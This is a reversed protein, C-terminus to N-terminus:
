LEDLDSERKIEIGLKTIITDFMKSYEDITAKKCDVYGLSYENNLYDRYVCDQYVIIGYLLKEYIDKYEKILKDKNIIYIKYNSSINNILLKFFRNKRLSRMEDKSCVYLDISKKGSKISNIREILYKIEKDSDNYLRELYFTIIKQEIKADQHDNAKKLWDYSERISDFEFLWNSSNLQCDLLDIILGNISSNTNTILEYVKEIVVKYLDRKFLFDKQAYTYKTKDNILSTIITNIKYNYTKLLRENSVLIVLTNKNTHKEVKEINEKGIVVIIDFTEKTKENITYDVKERNFKYTIAELMNSKQDSIILVKNNM